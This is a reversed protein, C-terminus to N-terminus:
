STPIRIVTGPPVSTWDMGALYSQAQSVLHVRPELFGIFANCGPCLLGRVCKRCSRAGKGEHACSHDHDVRMNKRTLAKRCLGCAGGQWDMLAMVDAVRLRYVAWLRHAYQEDGTAFCDKCHPLYGTKRTQNRFFECVPKTKACRTCMLEQADHLRRKNQERYQRSM